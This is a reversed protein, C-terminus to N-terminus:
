TSENKEWKGAMMCVEIRNWEIKPREKDQEM